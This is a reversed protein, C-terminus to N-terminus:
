GGAMFPKVDKEVSQLIVLFERGSRMDSGLPETYSFGEFGEVSIGNKYIEICEMCISKVKVEGYM